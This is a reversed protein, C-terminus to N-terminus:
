RRRGASRQQRLRPRSKAPTESPPNTPAATPPPLQEMNRSLSRVLEAAQHYRISPEVLMAKLITKATIESVQPAQRRVDPRPANLHAGAQQGPTGVFPPKGSLLWFAICGLAYCDGAALLLPPTNLAEPAAWAQLMLSSADWGPRAAQMTRGFALGYDSLRPTGEPDLLINGPHLMGHVCGLQELQALGRAIEALLPLAQAEALPAGAAQAARLDRGAVYEAVVVARGDTAAFAARYGVLCRQTGGLLPQLDRVFLDVASGPALRNAHFLKIVVPAGAADAGLWTSATRGQGLCALRTYPATLLYDDDPLLQRLMQAEPSIAGALRQDLEAPSQAGAWSRGVEIAREHTLLGRRIAAQLLAAAANTAM